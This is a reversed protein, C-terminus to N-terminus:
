AELAIDHVTIHHWAIHNLRIKHHNRLIVRFRRTSMMPTCSEKIVHSESCRM